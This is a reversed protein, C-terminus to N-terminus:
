ERLLNWTYCLASNMINIMNYMQKNIEHSSIQVKQSGEDLEERGGGEVEPLQM